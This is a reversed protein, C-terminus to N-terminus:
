MRGCRWRPAGSQFPHARNFRKTGFDVSVTGIICRAAEWPQGKSDLWPFVFFMARKRYKLFEPPFCFKTRSPLARPPFDTLFVLRHPGPSYRRGAWAGDPTSKYRMPPDELPRHQSDKAVRSVQEAGTNAPCTPAKRLPQQVHPELIRRRTAVGVELSLCRVRGAETDGWPNSMRTIKRAMRHPSSYCACGPPREPTPLLKPCSAPWCSLGTV